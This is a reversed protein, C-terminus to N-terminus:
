LLMSSTNWLTMGGLSTTWGRGSDKVLVSLPWGCMGLMFQPRDFEGTTCGGTPLPLTSVGGEEFEKLEPVVTLPLQLIIKRM